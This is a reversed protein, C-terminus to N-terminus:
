CIRTRPKSLCIGAYAFLGFGGIAALHLPFNVLSNVLIAALSAACAVVVPTKEARWVRRVADGCLWLFLGAGILGWEIALQFVENHVHRCTFLPDGLKFTRSLEMVFGPGMGTIPQQQFIHYFAQWAQWRGYPNLADRQLVWVGLLGVTVVAFGVRWRPRLWWILLGTAVLWALLGGASHCCLVMILSGTVGVWRSWHRQIWLWPTLVALQAAFHSPNGITGVLTDRKLAPDLSRFFQDLNCVQLVGYVILAVTAWAIWLSVRQIGDLTLSMTMAQYVMVVLLVHLAGQLMPLPYLHDKLITKTWLSLVLVGLWAILWGLPRNRVTAGGGAGIIWAWMGLVGLQWWLAQGHWPDLPRFLFHAFPLGTLVVVWGIERLSM